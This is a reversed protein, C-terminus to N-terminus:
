VCSLSLLYMFLYIFLNQQLGTERHHKTFYLRHKNEYDHDVSGVFVRGQYFIWESCFCKVCLSSWLQCVM